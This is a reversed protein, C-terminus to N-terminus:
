EEARHNLSGMADLQRSFQRRLRKIMIQQYISYSNFLLLLAVLRRVLRLQFFPDHPALGPFSLSVVALTLLLMVVIALSWLWWDRRERTRLQQRIDGVHAGPAPESNASPPNQASTEM